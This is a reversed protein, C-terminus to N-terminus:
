VALHSRVMHLTLIKYKVYFPFAKQGIKTGVIIYLVLDWKKLLELTHM